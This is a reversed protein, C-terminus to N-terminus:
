EAFVKVLRSHAVRVFGFEDESLYHRVTLRLPRRDGGLNAVAIPVIHRLGQAGDSMQTFGGESVEVQSGWLIQDEDYYETPDGEGDILARAHFVGDGDRWLLIEGAESFLRASQLTEMRLPPSFDTEPATILTGDEVRGWIVGDEAHALLFFRRESGAVQEQLWAQVDQSPASIAELKVQVTKIERMM